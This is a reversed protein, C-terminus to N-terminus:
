ISNKGFIIKEDRDKAMSKILRSKKATVAYIDRQEKDLGEIAQALLMPDNSISAKCKLLTELGPRLQRIQTKPARLKKALRVCITLIDKNLQYILPRLPNAEESLELARIKPDKIISSPVKKPKYKKIEDM